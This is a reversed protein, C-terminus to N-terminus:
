HHEVFAFPYVFVCFAYIKPEPSIDSSLVVRVTCSELTLTSVYLYLFNRWTDRVQKNKYDKSFKNYLSENRQLEEMFSAVSCEVNDEVEAAMKFVFSTYEPVYKQQM